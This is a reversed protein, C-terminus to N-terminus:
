AQRLAAGRIPMSRIRVSAADFVANAVAPPVAIMPTEGAGASPLDPRNLLVIEMAPVDKFRPVRYRSFRANLIRGGEFRIEELLAGGITMIICGTVQAKLNEPNQIAGCEFTQCVELLRIAGEQRDVEVEVCAAVYSGKETGCALGVGRNSPRSKKREDWGFRAAAAELVARMREDKLHALRYELPDRMCAAALEDMFSERAFNNATAALVRYSGQRLPSDSQLFQERTHPIDYPSRLASAGSNINTFEWALLQGDEVIGAGTEILAAPRFYAWTFEEERTWRLSVPRGAAKALRAAEVASEGSHKGGFGGGTDPVIVRVREEPLHFAAALERRVNMPQQTGTWVTLRGDEWEAVAARPEMPAHQIYAVEYSARLTRGAAALGEEISGSENVRPTRGGGEGTAAHRKLHEFLTSGSPQPPREWRAAKALAEVAKGAGYSTPAACGAFDGDRVAVVGALAQAPALDLENLTAGYSPPRLVRGYLMNPRVIDSPYRHAGTVVDRGDPRPVSTGLVKWDKTATVEVDDPVAQAFAPDFDASRALEGYTLKRGSAPDIVAGDETRLAGADAEWQRAALDILIQRAAAAGKRVAPVTSPTTRSGATGGDDPTLETDAMILAISEVPARLEEAAAQTLQTRSGQGIEVKGTMVTIRGDSAIHVRAAVSQQAPRTSQAIATSRHVTILIGAGAASLLDRRTLAFDYRPAERLEYREPENDPIIAPNRM